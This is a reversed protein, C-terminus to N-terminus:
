ENENELILPLYPAYGQLVANPQVKSIGTVASGVYPKLVPASPDPLLVAGEDAMIVPAKFPNRSVALRDGHRGFRTFPTFRFRESAGKEQFVCPGLTYIAETTKPFCLHREEWGSVEFRGLGISADRGFGFRGIDVMANVIREIDTWKEDLLVFVALEMGPMYYLSEKSFPAFAGKGTAGSLRNISNHAHEVVKCMGGDKRSEIQNRVTDPSMSKIARSLQQDDWFDVSDISMPLKGSSIMWKKEKQNKLERYYTARDTNRKDKFLMYIPLDPRKLIYRAFSGTLKPIASSFIAFPNTQYVEIAAELGGEVLDPQYAVQWCFHGFLTDGKLPTGIGSQPRITIEYLKM